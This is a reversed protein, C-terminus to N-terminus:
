KAIYPIYNCSLMVGEHNSQLIIRNSEKGVVLRYRGTIGSFTEAIFQWGNRKLIRVIDGISKKRM